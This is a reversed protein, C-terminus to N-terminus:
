QAGFVVVHVAMSNMSPDAVAFVAAGENWVQLEFYGAARSAVVAMSGGLASNAIVTYNTNGMAQAFTFRIVNAGPLSVGSCNLGGAVTVGGIGDTSIVGFAKPFSLPTLTNEFIDGAAPDAGTLRIYGNTRIGDSTGSGKAFLGGPGAGTGIGHVGPGDSTGGTGKVGPGGIGDGGTGEIGAGGTTGAGGQGFVGIGEIDGGLGEIGSASTGTNGEGYIGVSNSSGAVGAGNAGGFGWVAPDGFTTTSSTIGDQADIRKQFIQFDTWTLAEDTLNKLYTVWEGVKNQWWNFYSSPPVQDVAWGAAKQGSGPETNNTQDTNWVPENGTPQPM